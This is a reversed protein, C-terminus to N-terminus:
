RHVTLRRPRTTPRYPRRPPPRAPPMPPAPPPSPPSPPAALHRGGGSVAASPSAGSPSPSASATRGPSPSPSSSPSVSPPSASASPAASPPGSPAIPAVAGVTVAVEEGATGNGARDTATPLLRQAGPLLDRVVTCSWGSDVGAVASCVTAREGGAARATVTVTTGPEARGSLKPRATALTDGPAPSGLQPRGPAVTDVTLTVPRGDTRNGARDVATASLRHAGDVLNEVPLCSWERGAGVETSCLENAAGTGGPRDALVVSVTSHPEGTGTLLLGPDNTFEPVTFVPAAPPATKVTIGVATGRLM